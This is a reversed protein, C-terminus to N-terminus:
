GMRRLGEVGALSRGRWELRRLRGAQCRECEGVGGWLHKLSMRGQADGSEVEEGEGEREDARGGGVQKTIVTQQM